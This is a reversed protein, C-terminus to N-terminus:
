GRARQAGAVPEVNERLKRQPGRRHLSETTGPFPRADGHVVTGDDLEIEVRSLYGDRRAQAKGHRALRARARARLHGEQHVDAAETSFVKPTFRERRHQTWVAAAVIHALITPPRALHSEM